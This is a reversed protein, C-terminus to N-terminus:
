GLPAERNLLAIVHSLTYGTDVIDEVVLVDRGEIAGKPRKIHASRQAKWVM